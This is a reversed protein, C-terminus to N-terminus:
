KTLIWQHNTIHIYGSFNSLAENLSSFVIPADEILPRASPKVQSDKDWLLIYPLNTSSSAFANSEVVWLRSPYKGMLAETRTKVDQAKCALFFAREAGSALMKSSDTEGLPNDERILLYGIEKDVEPHHVYLTDDSYGAVKLAYISANQFYKVIACALSTKGIHKRTGTICLISSDM